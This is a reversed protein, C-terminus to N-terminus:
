ISNWPKSKRCTKARHRWNVAFPPSKENFSLSVFTGKLVESRLWFQVYCTSPPPLPTCSRPTGSAWAQTIRQARPFHRPHGQARHRCQVSSKCLLGCPLNPKWGSSCLCCGGWPQQAMGGGTKHDSAGGEGEVLGMHPASHPGQTLGGVKHLGWRYFWQHLHQWSESDWRHGPWM